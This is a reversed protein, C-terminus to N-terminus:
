EVIDPNTTETENLSPVGAEKLLDATADLFHPDLTPDDGDPKPVWIVMGKRARTLLVRYSNLM